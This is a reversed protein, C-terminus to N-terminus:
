WIDQKGVLNFFRSAPPISFQLLLLGRDGRVNAPRGGTAARCAVQAWDDVQLGGGGARQALGAGATAARMGAMGAADPHESSHPDSATAGAAAGAARARWGRREGGSRAPRREWQNGNWGGAGGSKSSASAWARRKGLFAPRHNGEGSWAGTKSGCPRILFLYPLPLLRL